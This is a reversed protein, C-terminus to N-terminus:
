LMCTKTQVTDFGISCLNKYANVDGINRLLTSDLPVKLNASGSTSQSLNSKFIVNLTCHDSCNNNDYLVAFQVM